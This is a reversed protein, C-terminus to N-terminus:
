DTFLSINYKACFVETLIKNKAFLITNKHM